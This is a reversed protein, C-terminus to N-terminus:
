EQRLASLADTLRVYTPTGEFSDKSKGILARLLMKAQHRWDACVPQEVAALKSEPVVAAGADAGVDAAVRVTQTKDGLNEYMSVLELAAEAADEFVPQAYAIQPMQSLCRYAKVYCDLCHRYDHRWFWYDAMARWLPASSTIRAEITAVLLHEMYRVYQVETHKAQREDMGVLIRGRTVSSIITRLADLDVAAAGDKDARLEIIRTMAHIASSIQGISVSVTMFNSWVQWSDFKGKVAERLAYWARDRHSSGMHMYVTALNNWAEGNDNELNVVRQFATAALEWNKIQLAACGMVYWSKEFLPNLALANQYCEVVNPYDNKRYYYAGLSRMARAYRQGSIEWAHRWHEPEAKLDGLVCWLKASDPYLELQEEIIRQAVENQGLLVYCSVVEDWMSLREYIDLASRIVGMTMFQNALEREFEWQSPLSLSYLYQLREAAGAEQASPLPHTIQDVLAQLQLTAREATRTKAAELRSRLLLGMTYVSWNTPQELVRAVFPRMLESTLGHAPNENQVNLCLALLICEDTVLLREEGAHGEVASDTYKIKELLTDDNLAMSEPLQGEAREGGASGSDGASKALLVLQVVDNTQFRTRKGKAGTMEWQLGSAAQAQVFCKKSDLPMHHQSYVVGVELLYRAWLDRDAAPVSDWEHSNPAMSASSLPVGNDAAAEAPSEFGPVANDDGLVPVT